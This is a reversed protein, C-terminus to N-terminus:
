SVSWGGTKKPKMDVLGWPTPFVFFFLVQLCPNFDQPHSFLELLASYPLILAFTASTPIFNTSHQVLSTSTLPGTSMMHSFRHMGIAYHLSLIDYSPRPVATLLEPPPTKYLLQHQLTSASVSKSSSSFCGRASFVWFESLTPHTWLSCM